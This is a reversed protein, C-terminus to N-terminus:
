RRRRSRRVTGAVGAARRRLRRVARPDRRRAARAPRAAAVLVAVRHRRAAAARLGAGPRAGGEGHRLADARDRPRIALPPQAVRPEERTRAAAARRCSRPRASSPPCRRSRRCTATPAPATAPARRSSRPASGKPATSCSRRISSSSRPRGDDVRDGLDHVLRAVRGEVEASVVVEERAALTGVVDVQRRVDRVQAPEIKVTRAKQGEAAQVDRDRACGQSLLLLGASVFLAGAKM